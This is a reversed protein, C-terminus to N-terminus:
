DLFIIKKAHSRREEIPPLKMYDGYYNKLHEKYKNPANFHLNEFEIKQLPFILDYNFSHDIWAEVGYIATNGDKSKLNLASYNFYLKRFYYLPFLIYHFFKAKSSKFVPKYPNIQFLRRLFNFTKVKEKDIRDLPFIDIFIGSKAPDYDELDGSEIYVSKRDRVKIWDLFYSKDTKKTQLFYKFNLSSGAVAIEIFKNYDERPMTIDIDDDWPIFGKHRVAGLLTGFDMWYNIDNEHCIKDVEILIEVMVKKARELDLDEM